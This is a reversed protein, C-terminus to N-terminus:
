SRSRVYFARHPWAPTPTTTEVRERCEAALTTVALAIIILMPADPRWAEGGHWGGGGQQEGLQQGQEVPGAEQRQQPLGEPDHAAAIGGYRARSVLLAHGAAIAGAPHRDM